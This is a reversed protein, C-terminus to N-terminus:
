EYRLAQMPQVRSARLAPLYGAGLAVSGLIAAAILLVAPDTGKLGFLLSGAAKGLALAAGIGLVGGILAMKGVQRIVMRRVRLADAGLAM